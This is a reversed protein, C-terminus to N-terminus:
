EPQNRNNGAVPPTRLVADVDPKAAVLEVRSLIITRKGANEFNATASGGAVSQVQGM